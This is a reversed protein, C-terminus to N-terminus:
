LVDTLPMVVYKHWKPGEWLTASAKDRASMRVFETPAKKLYDLLYDSNLVIELGDLGGPAAVDMFAEGVDQTRALLRCKGDTFTFKVARTKDTTALRVQTLAKALEAANFEVAGKTDPVVAAYDPFRGDILRSYAVANPFEFFVPGVAETKEDYRIKVWSEVGDRAALLDAATAMREVLAALRYPVLLAADRKRRVDGLTQWALVKGDSAVVSVNKGKWELLIATLAYRVVETSVAFGVSRIARALEGAQIEGVVPADPSPLAPFDLPDMGKVTLGSDLQAEHTDKTGKVELAIEDRDSGRAYGALLSAPLCTTAKGSGRKRDLRVSVGVELDTAALEVAGNASLRAHTLAPITSRKPIVMCLFGLAEVFAKRDVTAKATM